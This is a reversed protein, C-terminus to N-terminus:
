TGGNIMRSVIGKNDTLDARIVGVLHALIYFYLLYQVFSHTSKVFGHIPKLFDVDEFALGLGTVAMVLFFLYFLVYGRKVLLYHTKNYDVRNNLKPYNVARKIKGSLRQESSQAVEIIVRLLFLFCLAFGLYKHLNWFKDNYEHAVAKAQDSSVIGGKQQVQEQVMPINGRITFVTSALLVMVISATITVFTLWHWIRIASSIKEKFFPPPSQLSAVDQM